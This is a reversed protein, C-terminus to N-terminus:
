PATAAAAGALAADAAAARCAPDAKAAAVAKGQAAAVDVACGIGAVEAATIAPRAAQQQSTTCAGLAPAIAALLMMLRRM